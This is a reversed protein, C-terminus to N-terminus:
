SASGTPTREDAEEAAPAGNGAEDGHRRVTTAFLRILAALPGDASRHGNAAERRRDRGTRRSRILAALPGDASRHGNATERRRDRGTRRSREGTRAEKIRREMALETDFDAEDAHRYEVGEGSLLSALVEVYRPDLQTGTVRRLENLAEFSSM